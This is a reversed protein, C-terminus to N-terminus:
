EQTYTELLGFSPFLSPDTFASVEAITDGDLSLVWIGWAHYANTHQDIRYVALAPQRNARTPIVRLRDPPPLPLSRFFDRASERGVYHLPLPPMTLIVDHKLLGVLQGIDMAQWADVYRGALSEAVADPPPVRGTHLLGTARQQELTKRGRNLASNVSATTSELMEAVADAPFGVVDRLILVARQRPPLLQVAALFALQVSEHLEADSLPDGSTAQVEDLLADPYPSLAIWPESSRSAAEAIPMPVNSIDRQVRRRQSLAANTAIRYLWARFSSRGEFGSLHRWARLLTEQVADEADHFSGLLRYCHLHLERTYRGTLARFADQDGALAAALESAEMDDASSQVVRQGYEVAAGAM